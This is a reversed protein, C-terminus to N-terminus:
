YFDESTKMLRVIMIGQNKDKSVVGAYVLVKEKGNNGKWITNILYSSPHFPVAVVVIGDPVEIGRAAIPDVTEVIDIPHPNPSFALLTAQKEAFALDETLRKRTDPRLDKEALRAKIRDIEQQRRVEGPSAPTRNPAPRTITAVPVTATTSTSSVENKRPLGVAFIILALLGAFVAILSIIAIKKM